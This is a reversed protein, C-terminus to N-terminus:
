DEPETADYVEIPKLTLGKSHPYCMGQLLWVCAKYPCDPVSCNPWNEPDDAYDACAERMAEDEDEFESTRVGM